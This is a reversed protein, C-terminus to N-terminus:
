PTEPILLRYRGVPRNSIDLGFQRLGDEPYPGLITVLQWSGSPDLTSTELEYRRGAVSAFQLELQYMTSGVIELKLVSAANRPDTGARYESLNTADDLDPDLSADNPSRPDLGNATEWADPM